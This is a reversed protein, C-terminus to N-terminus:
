ACVIFEFDLVKELTGYNLFNEDGFYKRVRWQTGFIFTCFIKSLSFYSCYFYNNRDSIFRAHLKQM